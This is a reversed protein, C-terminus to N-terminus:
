VGKERQGWKLGKESTRPIKRERSILKKKLHSKKKKQLKERKPKEGEGNHVL